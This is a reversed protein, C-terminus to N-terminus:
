TFFSWLGLPVSFCLISILLLWEILPIILISYLGLFTLPVVIGIIGFSKPIRNQFFIIYISFLIISIVFGLFAGGASLGHYINNPGARELSFIGVFFYGIGGCVGIIVALKLIISGIFPTKVTVSKKISTIQSIVKKRLSFYYPISILGALICATDFLGPFPTLLYSGLESITNRWLMYATPESYFAIIASFFILSVYGIIGIGLSRKFYKKIPKLKIKQLIKVTKSNKEVKFTQPTLELAILLDKGEDILQINKDLTGSFWNFLINDEFIENEVNYNWSPVYGRPRLGADHFIKQHSSNYASIFVECYRIGLEKGCKIFERAFVSLEELNAVYYNTKEFNQVHPTYLFEFYSDSNKLTFRITEYGFKDKSIHKVLNRKITKVESHDLKIEPNAIKYKGLSYRNESYLYCTEVCPIIEPISESRYQKLAREDYLIQMLDSEVNELFVDKNPYFGIPAIGCVWMSYQSKAHATRNEVYWNYIQDRFTYIMGLMSGIMAKTIDIYGQYKKKLMFGRIYGRRNDFDLVFTICGAINFSPDQYIIWQISPNNIMKRVEDVDEMEKYPYTGDYLDKYIGVIEEADELRALRLIPNVKSKQERDCLEFDLCIGKHIDPDIIQKFPKIFQNTYNPFLENLSVSTGVPLIKKESLM